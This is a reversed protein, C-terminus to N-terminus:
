ECTLVPTGNDFYFCFLVGFVIKWQKEASSGKTKSPHANVM